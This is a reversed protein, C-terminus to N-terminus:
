IREEESALWKQILATTIEGTTGAYASRNWLEPMGNEVLLKPHRKAMFEQGNNMLLLAVEEISMKPVIRVILHVHDPVISIQDLAFNEKNAVTLWYETLAQGVVSGFVGKRQPTSFVLHHTLNFAAHSAKLARPEPARYKFVPPLLRADYGHHSAQQELYEQVESIRVSGSSRALYGTAWVPVSINFQQALERASNCKLLRVAESISQSPTFSLLCRLQTPYSKQELLRYHHNTSIEEILHAVSNAYLANTFLERRRHTRFCLYYHLQYSWALSSYPTLFM